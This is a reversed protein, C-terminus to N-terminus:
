EFYKCEHYLEQSKKTSAGNGSDQSNTSNLSKNDAINMLNSSSYKTRYIYCGWIASSIIICVNIGIITSWVTYKQIFSQNM